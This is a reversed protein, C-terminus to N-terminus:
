PVLITFLPSSYSFFKYLNSYGLGKNALVATCRKPMYEVLAKCVSNPISYWTKQVKAWIEEKNRPKIAFNYCRKRSGTALNQGCWLYAEFKEM